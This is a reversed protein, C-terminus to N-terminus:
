QFIDETSFHCYELQFKKEIEPISDKYTQFFTELDDISCDPIEIKVGCKSCKKEIIMINNSPLATFFGNDKEHLMTLRKLPLFKLCVDAFPSLSIIILEMKGFRIIKGM